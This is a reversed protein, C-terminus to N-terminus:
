EVVKEVLCSEILRNRERVLNNIKFFAYQIDFDNIHQMSVNSVHTRYMAIKENYRTILDSMKPEIVYQRFIIPQNM